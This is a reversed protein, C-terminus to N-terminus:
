GCGERRRQSRQAQKGQQREGQDAAGVPIDGAALHHPRVVGIDFGVGDADRGVDGADDLLDIDGVVLVDLGAVDQEAQVIAREAVREVAGLGLDADDGVIEVRELRVVAVHLRLDRLRLVVDLIVLALEVALLIECGLEDGRLLREIGRPHVQLVGLLLDSRELLLEGANSGIEVAIRVDRDFLVRTIERGDGLPVLRRALEVTTFAGNAPMTVCTGCQPRALVQLGRRGGEVEDIGIVEPHFRGRFLSFQGIYPRPLRDRHRYVGIGVLFPVARDFADARRRCCNARSGACFVLPLQTFITCRISMRMRRSAPSLVWGGSRAPM